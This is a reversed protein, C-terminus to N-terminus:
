PTTTRSITQTAMASDTSDPVWGGGLAKYLRVHDTSIAATASVVSDQASLQTRQTELVVSFDVLGSSYRQRALQAANAASQAANQLPVLRERDGHLAVLADEVDKLANLIAGRYTQLSQDLAAQQATVQALGAGGDFLPFSVSALLSAVM